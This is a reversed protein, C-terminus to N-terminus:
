LQFRRWGTCTLLEDAFRQVAYCHTVGEDGVQGFALAEGRRLDACGHAKGVQRVRAGLDAAFGIFGQDLALQFVRVGSQAALGVGGTFFAAALDGGVVQAHQVNFGAKLNWADHIRQFCTTVSGQTEVTGGARAFRSETFVDGFVHALGEDDLLGAIQHALVHSFRLLVHGRHKGFGGLFFGHEQEVFGVAKQHVPAAGLAAVLHGFDVLHQLLHLPMVADEDAGGVQEIANVLCRQAAKGELDLEHWQRSHLALLHEDGFRQCTVRLFEAGLDASLQGLQRM